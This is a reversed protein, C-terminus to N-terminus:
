FIKAKPASFSPIQRRPRGFNEFNRVAVSFFSSSQSRPLLYCRNNSRLVISRPM